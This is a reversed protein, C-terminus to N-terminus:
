GIVLRPMDAASYKGKESFEMDFRQAMMTVLMKMVHEAFTKGFCVRRGGNFPLWSM